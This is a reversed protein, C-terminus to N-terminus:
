AATDGAQNFPVVTEATANTNVAHIGSYLRAPSHIWKELNPSLDEAAQAACASLANLRGEAKAIFPAISADVANLQSEVDRLEALYSDLRGIERTYAARITPVIRNVVSMGTRVGGKNSMQCYTLSSARDGRM